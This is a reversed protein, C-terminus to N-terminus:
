GSSKLAPAYRRLIAALDAIKVPKAVFDDMGAALCAEREGELANATLAVVPVRGGRECETRRIERTAAYGDLEPMHCDMLILDYPLNQWMHIAEHGDAAIDVRAGLRELMRMAVKQNVVNDEVLLVRCRGTSATATLAAVSAEPLAAISEAAPALPLELELWFCSGKGPTSRVKLEGGMLASLRRSIALGLGTGGYMRTTSHDAQIFEEFIADIKNAPIGIGTDSVALRFRASGPRSPQASVALEVGGQHTFKIANGILNMLVQRLRGPDGCVQEPTDAAFVLRLSIGKEVAKLRMLELLEELSERLNFAIWELDMRGAEIKSFDLIDNIISLLTDASAQITQLYDRQEPDLETSEELLSAMGIVGNLPTRIEHSMAALFQARSRAAAEALEKAQSLEQTREEVRQELLVYARALARDRDQVQELITNFARALRGFGDAGQSSVRVSFDNDRSMREAVQALELAPAIVWHQCLRALLLSVALALLGALGPALLSWTSLPGDQGPPAVLFVASTLLLTLAATGALLASLRFSVTLRSRWHAQM